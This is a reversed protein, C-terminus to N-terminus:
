SVLSSFRIWQQEKNYNSHVMRSGAAAIENSADRDELLYTISEILSKNSDYPVYNVKDKFGEPYIGADSVMCTGCGLAEYCRMNVRYGGTSPGSTNFTNGAANISIRSNGLVDYMSEGFLPKEVRGRLPKPLVPRPAPIYRRLLSNKPFLPVFKPVSAHIKFSYDKGLRDVLHSLILTRRQHHIGGLNGIFSIDWKRKKNQKDLMCDDVAPHFDNAHYGQANWAEIFPPYNSLLHDFCSFDGNIHPGAHWAVVKGVYDRIKSVFSPGCLFPNMVYLVDPKFAKVQDVLVNEWDWTNLGNEKAWLRCAVEDNAYAFFFDESGELAPMLIHPSHFRERLLARTREEYSLFSANPNRREYDRYFLVTPFFAQFVKM